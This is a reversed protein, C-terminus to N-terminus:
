LVHATEGCWTVVRCERIVCAGRLPAGVREFAAVPQGHPRGSTLEDKLMPGFPAAPRHLLTCHTCEHFYGHVGDVLPRWTRRRGDGDTRRRGDRSACARAGLQRAAFAAAQHTQNCHETELPRAAQTFLPRRDSMYTTPRYVIYLGGWAYMYYYPM